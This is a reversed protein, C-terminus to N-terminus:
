PSILPLESYLGDLEHALFTESRLLAGRRYSLGKALLHKSAALGLTRQRQMAALKVRELHRELLKPASCYLVESYPLRLWRRRFVGRQLMIFATEAGDVLMLPICRCHAHDNLIRREEGSLIGQMATSDFVLSPPLRRLTAVNMLPPFFSSDDLKSFGLAETLIRRVSDAPTLSTYTVGKLDTAAALLANAWGRHAPRVYLSSLNCVPGSKGRSNRQAGILGIFGVIEGAVTLVFGRPIDDPQWTHDFIRRWPLRRGFGEDLLDCIESEDDRRATRVQVAGARRATPSSVGARLLEALEKITSVGILAQLPLPTKTRNSVEILFGLVTLSDGGLALFDDAPLVAPVNLHRQCIECLEKELDDRIPDSAPRAARVLKDFLGEICDPNLLASRNRIPRGNVADRAAAESRKGSHTVPLEDVQIIAAPVMTANGQEVLTRRIRGILPGDLVAGACLVVLLIMRTGGAENEDTQEVAMAEIIEPLGQLIRYIEAPGIRVGRINMVGDSRGHLVAGHRSLEILDGHTWVGPHQAFYAEHYRVNSPDEYFGTPRSPFPNACILDGIGAEPPLSRVDLGLSRCQARGRYVPLLPNGLVFCGIIDTGGSISQVPIRRVHEVIWDFQSPYLISGTSLISRLASLNLVQPLYGATETFKLYAPNTGFVTVGREAVIEWLTEPGKLPGDYCVVEAGCALASLQWNWMMWGCSTQFFMRDDRCLDGHLRHEKVHELLTGGTGHVICKPAGTTGSSFLVFLPHDFSFRQWGFGTADATLAQALGKVPVVVPLAADDLTIVATLSPLGGIVETVREPLPRGVDWPQSACNAILVKPQLPVFRSLVSPVGMDHACSSFVAGVAASALAAVIAEINNRAIAAVRDGPEVGLKRLYTAFRVVRDRLEARTVAERRGDVHCGTVATFSGDGRLLNEAYNLRLGPFFRATETQDGVCVPEPNGECLIGSWQLFLAWFIRFQVAAFDEFEWYDSFSRGAHRECYDIFRRLQSRAITDADPEHMVDMPNLGGM